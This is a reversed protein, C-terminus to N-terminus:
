LEQCTKFRTKTLAQCTKHLNLVLSSLDQSPRPWSKVLTSCVEDLVQYTESWINLLTKILSKGENQLSLLLGGSVSAQTFFSELIFFFFCLVFRASGWLEQYLIFFNQYRGFIGNMAM